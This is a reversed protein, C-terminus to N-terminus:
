AFDLALFHTQVLCAFGRLVGLALGGRGLGKRPQGSEKEDVEQQRDKRVPVDICQLAGGRPTLGFTRRSRGPQCEALSIRRAFAKIRNPWVVWQIVKKPSLGAVLAM